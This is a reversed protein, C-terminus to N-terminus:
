ANGGDITSTYTSIASGGDINETGNNSGSNREWTGNKRTYQYGDQPAEPFGVKQTNLNVKEDIEKLIFEKISGLRYNKTILMLDDADFGTLKDNESINEDTSYKNQKAM